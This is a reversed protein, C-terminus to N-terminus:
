RNESRIFALVSDRRARIEAADSFRLAQEYCDFADRSRELEELSLGKQYWAMADRPDLRIVREFCSLAQDHKGLRALSIGKRFWGRAMGPALSLAYDFFEMAKRDDGLQSLAIGRGLWGLPAKPEKELGHAFTELAESEKKMMLLDFGKRIWPSEGGKFLNVMKTVRPVPKVSLQVRTPSINEGRRPGYRGRIVRALEGTVRPRLANRRRAMGPVCASAKDPM